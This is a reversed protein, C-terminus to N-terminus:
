LDRGDPTERSPSRRLTQSRESRALKSKPSGCSYSSVIPRKETM